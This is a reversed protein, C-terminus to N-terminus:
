NADARVASPGVPFMVDLLESLESQLMSMTEDFGEVNVVNNEEVTLLRLGAEFAGLADKFGERYALKWAIISKHTPPRTPM